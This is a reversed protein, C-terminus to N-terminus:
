TTGTPRMGLKRVVGKGFYTWEYGFTSEKENFDCAIINLDLLRPVAQALVLTDIGSASGLTVTGPRPVNFRAMNGAAHVLAICNLDLRKIADAVALSEFEIVEEIAIRLDEALQSRVEAADPQEASGLQYTMPFRKNRFDIPLEEPRGTNTNMVGIIREHGLRGFAYGMEVAVNPNPVRKPAGKGKRQITGVLTLDGVFIASERIKKFMISAIEPSGSQNEMDSDIRPFDEVQTGRKIAAAAEDLAARIFDRNISRDSDSQWSYFITYEM